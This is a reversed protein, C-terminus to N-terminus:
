SNRQVDILKALYLHNGNGVFDADRISLLSASTHRRQLCQPRRLHIPWTRDVDAVLYQAYGDYITGKNDNLRIKHMSSVTCGQLGRRAGARPPDGIVILETTCLWYPSHLFSRSADGDRVELEIVPPPDLPWKTGRKRLSILVVNWCM